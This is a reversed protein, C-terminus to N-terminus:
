AISTSFGNLTFQLLCSIKLIKNNVYEEVSYALASIFWDVHLRTPGSHSTQFFRVPFNRGYVLSNLSWISLFNAPSLLFLYAIFYLLLLFSIVSRNFKSFLQYIQGTNLRGMYNWNLRRRFFFSVVLSITPKNVFLFMAMHILWM